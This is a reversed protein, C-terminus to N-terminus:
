GEETQVEEYEINEEIIEDQLVVLMLSYANFQKETIIRYQENKKPKPAIDSLAKAKKYHIENNKIIRKIAKQKIKEESSVRVGDQKEEKKKWINESAWNTM